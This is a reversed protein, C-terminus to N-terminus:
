GPPALKKYMEKCFKALRKCSFFFSPKALFPARRAPDGKQSPQTIRRDPCTKRWIFVKTRGPPDVRDPCSLLSRLIRPRRRCTFRQKFLPNATKWDEDRNCWRREKDFTLSSEQLQIGLLRIWTLFYFSFKTTAQTRGRYFMFNPMERWLRAFVEFFHVFSHSARAFNNNEKNFRNSTHREQQRRWRRIKLDRSPWKWSSSMQSCSSSNM